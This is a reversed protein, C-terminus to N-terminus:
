ARLLKLDGRSPVGGGRNLYLGNADYHLSYTSDFQEILKGQAGAKVLDIHEQLFSTLRPIINNYRLLNWEVLSPIDKSFHHSSLEDEIRKLMADQASELKRNHEAIDIRLTRLTEFASVSELKLHSFAKESLYENDPLDAVALRYDRLGDTARSVIELRITSLQKLV